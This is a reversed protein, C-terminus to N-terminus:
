ESCFAALIDATDYYGRHRVIKGERLTFVMVWDHEYNRGTSKVRGRNRGEVVVKDGQATFDLPELPEPQVKEALEKFFQAVQERGRRPRSWSIQAHETRTAPSQWDVDEALMDLVGPLDGRGFAAFLRQVAQVNEQEGM